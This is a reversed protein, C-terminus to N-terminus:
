YARWAPVGMPEPGVISMVTGGSLDCVYLEGQEDEGFSSISHPSNLMLRPEWFNLGIEKLTWIEGTCYDGYFYLGTLAPYARGRYVYGGTISCRGGSHAYEAIPLILDGTQCNTSPNFCLTGEMRRWGYNGGNEILDIEERAGQGVDACFLRGTARDFSFRWPNRLGYAYIEDLGAQGVFPNDPPIGYPTGADVDLRLLKGLLTDTSQGNGITGHGPEDDGGGGGDGLAIYLYGDPGFALHGGNHNTQPQAVTLLITEAPDAVFPDAASVAFRSVVTAGDGTRTYYVFFRGNNAYDPHFALGLLGREGGALIKSRIDLFNGPLLMGNEDVIRIRGVQEIVFLRGSGDGAHTVYLPSQLGGVLLELRIEQAPADVALALAMCLLSLFASRHM